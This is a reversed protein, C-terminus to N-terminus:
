AFAENRALKWSLRSFVTTHSQVNAVTILNPDRELLYKMIVQHGQLVAFHLATDGGVAQGNIKAGSKLLQKSVTSHGQPAALHLPTRKQHDQVDIVDNGAKRIAFSLFHAHGYIAFLHTWLAGQLDGLGLKVLVNLTQDSPWSLVKLLKSAEPKGLGASTIHYSWSAAYGVLRLGPHHSGYVGM